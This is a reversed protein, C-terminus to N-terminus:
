MFIPSPYLIPFHLLLNDHVNGPFLVILLTKISKGNRRIGTLDPHM